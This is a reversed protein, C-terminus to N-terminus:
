FKFRYLNDEVSPEFSQLPLGMQHSSITSIQSAGTSLSSMSNLLVDEWDTSHMAQPTREHPSWCILDQTTDRPVLAIETGEGVIPLKPDSSLDILDPCSNVSSSQYGQLNADSYPSERAPKGNVGLHRPQSMPQSTTRQLM